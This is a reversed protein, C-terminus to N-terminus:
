TSNRFCNGHRGRRTEAASELRTAGRSQPEPEAGQPSTVSLFPKGAARSDVVPSADVGDPSLFVGEPTMGIRHHTRSYGTVPEHERSPATFVARAPPKPSSALIAHQSAIRREARRRTRHVIRLAQTWSARVGRSPREPAATRNVRFVASASPRTRIAIDLRDPKRRPKPEAPIQLHPQIRHAVVREEIESPRGRTIRDVDIGLLDLMRGLNHDSSGTPFTRTPSGM